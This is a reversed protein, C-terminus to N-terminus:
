QPSATAAKYAKHILAPVVHSDKPHFNDYKGYINTTSVSRFNTGYQENYLNQHMHMMRKSYAYGENSFHPPGDYLSSEKIPYSVKDPYICNSLMSILKKVKFEHSLKIINMNIAMNKEYYGVKDNM